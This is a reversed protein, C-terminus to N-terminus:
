IGVIASVISIINSYCMMGSNELGIPKRLARAQWTNESDPAMSNLFLFLIIAATWPIDAQIISLSNGTLTAAAM